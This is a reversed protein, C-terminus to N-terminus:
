LVKQCLSCFDLALGRHKSRSISNDALLYSTPGLSWPLFPICDRALCVLSLLLLVLSPPPLLPLLHQPLLAKGRGRGGSFSNEWYIVPM